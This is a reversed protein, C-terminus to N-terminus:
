CTTAWASNESAAAATTSTGSATPSPRPRPRRASRCWWPRGCSRARSRDRAEPHAQRRAHGSTSDRWTSGSTSRSSARARGRGHGVDVAHATCGPPGRMRSTTRSCSPRASSARAGDRASGPRARCSSTASPGASGPAAHGTAPGAAVARGHRHREARAEGEVGGQQQGSGHRADAPRRTRAFGATLDAALDRSRTPPAAPRTSSRRSPMSTRSPTAASAAPSRDRRHRPRHRHRRRGSVAVDGRRGPRGPVACEARDRGPVTGDTWHPRDHRRRPAAAAIAAILQHLRLRRALLLVAPLIGGLRVPDGGADALTVDVLAAPAAPAPRETGSAAPGAPGPARDWTVVFLSLLTTIVAVAMIVVPVGLSPADTARGSPASASATRLRDPPGHRRLERRLAAAESTSSPPTTRSSSRHGVRAPIPCTALARAVATRPRRVAATTPRLDGM